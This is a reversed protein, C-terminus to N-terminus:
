TRPSSRRSFSYRSPSETLIQYSSLAGDGLDRPNEDPPRRFAASGSKVCGSGRRPSHIKDWLSLMITALCSTGPTLLFFLGTGAPRNFPDRSLDSALFLFRVFM